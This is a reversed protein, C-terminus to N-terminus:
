SLFINFSKSMEVNSPDLKWITKKITDLHAIIPKRLDNWQKHYRKVLQVADPSVQLLLFLIFLSISFTHTICLM